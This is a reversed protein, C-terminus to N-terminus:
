FGVDVGLIFRQDPDSAADNWNTFEATVRANERAYFAVQATTTHLNQENGASDASGWNHRVMPVVRHGGLDLPLLVQAYGGDYSYTGLTGFDDEANVYAAMVTAMGADLRADFGYITFDDNAWTTGAADSIKDTGAHYFGGVMFAGGDYALRAQYDGPDAGNNDGNFYSSKGGGSLGVMYWLPGVQGDVDVQQVNDRLRQDNTFTTSVPDTRGSVDFIGKHEETVRHGDSLTNYPDTFFVPANGLHVNLAPSVHYGLVGHKVGIAWGDEDETELESFVSINEAPRGVLFVELEHLPDVHTRGSGNSNDVAFGAIHASVPYLGTDEGNLTYGNKKFERGTENLLPYSLHCGSCELGTQKAFSPVAWADRGQLVLASAFIMIFAVWKKM